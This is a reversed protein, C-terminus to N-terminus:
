KSSRGSCRRMAVATVAAIVSLRGSKTSAPVPVPLVSASRSGASSDPWRTTTDVPVLTLDTCAGGPSGTITVHGRAPATVGTVRVSIQVPQGPASRSPTTTTVETLTTQAPGYAVIFPSVLDGVRHFNGGAILQGRFVHLATPSLEFRAGLQTWASGDWRSVPRDGVLDDIGAAVLQGGHTVLSGVSHSLGPLADWDQGNWQLVPSIAPGTGGVSGGAVLTGAHVTLESIWDNSGTGMPQWAQGDWRAINFDPVGAARTLEGAMVLQQQYVQLKYVSELTDAGMAAWQSGNWRSRFLM